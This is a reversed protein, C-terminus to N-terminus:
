RKSYPEYDDDKVSSFGSGSTNKTYSESKGNGKKIYKQYLRVGLFSMAVAFILIETKNM